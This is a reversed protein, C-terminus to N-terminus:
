SVMMKRFRATCMKKKTELSFDERTWIMYPEALADLSDRLQERAGATSGPAAAVNWPNEYKEDCEVFGLGKYFGRGELSAHLCVTKTFTQLFRVLAAGFFRVGKKRADRVFLNKLELHHTDLDEHSDHAAVPPAEHASTSTIIVKERDPDEVELTRFNFSKDNFFKSGSFTQVSTTTSTTGASLSATTEEVCHLQHIWFYSSTPPRRILEVYTRDCPQVRGSSRAPPQQQRKPGSDDTVDVVYRTSPTSLTAATALGVHGFDEVFEVDSSRAEQKKWVRTVPREGAQRSSSGTGGLLNITTQADYLRVETTGIQLAIDFLFDLYQKEFLLDKYKADGGAVGDFLSTVDNWLPLAPDSSLIVRPQPGFFAPFFPQLSVSPSTGASASPSPDDHLIASPKVPVMIPKPRNYRVGYMMRPTPVDREDLGHLEEQREHTRGAPGRPTPTDEHEMPTPTDEHESDLGGRGAEDIEDLNQGGVDEEGVGGEFPFTKIACAAGLSGPLVVAAMTGGVGQLVRHVKRVAFSGGEGLRMLDLYFRHRPIPLSPRLALSSAFLDIRISKPAAADDHGHALVLANADVRRYSLDIGCIEPGTPGRGRRPPLFSLPLAPFHMCKQAKQSPSSFHALRPRPESPPVTETLGDPSSGMSLAALLLFFNQFFMM